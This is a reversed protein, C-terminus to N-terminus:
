GTLTDGTVSGLVASPSAMSVTRRTSVTRPGTDVASSPRVSMCSCTKTSDGSLWALQDSSHSSSDRTASATSFSVASTPAPMRVMTSGVTSPRPRSMRRIARMLSATGSRCMMGAVPM